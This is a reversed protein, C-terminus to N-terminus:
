LNACQDERAGHVSNGGGVPPTTNGECQLDGGLNNGSLTLGGGNDDAQLNGGITNGRADLRGNQSEWKLDGDIRTGTITSSGGDEIQFNGGITSPGIVDVVLAGEAQVDGDISVNRAVLTAGGGITVNGDVTTGELTCTAGVPVDVEEVTTAGVTGRCSGPLAKHPDESPPAVSLDDSPQATPAPVSDSIDPIDSTASTPSSTSATDIVVDRSACGLLATTAAISMALVARSVLLSRHHRTTFSRHDDVVAKRAERGQETVIDEQVATAGAILREEAGV